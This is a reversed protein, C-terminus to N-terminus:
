VGGGGAAVAVTWSTLERLVGTTAADFAAVIDASERSPVAVRQEFRRSAALRGDADRLLSATLRVRVTAPPAGEAGIEAQFAELDTILTYDALPGVARTTVFGLRGSNTLSRTVLQQLHLPAPDVWRADPLFTIARPGPKVVIRDTALAGSSSPTDVFITRGAPSLDAGAASVPTLEYTDLARSAQDLSSLTGCGSLLAGALLLLARAPVPRREAPARSRVTSAVPMMEPM